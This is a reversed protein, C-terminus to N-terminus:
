LNHDKSSAIMCHPRGVDSVPLQQLTWNHTCCWCDAALWRRGLLEGPCPVGLFFDAGTHLLLCAYRTTWHQVACLQVSNVHTNSLKISIADTHHDHNDAHTSVSLLVNSLGTWNCSNHLQKHIHFMGAVMCRCRHMCLGVANGGAECLWFHSCVALFM